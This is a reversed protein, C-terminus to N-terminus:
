RIDPNTINVQWNLSSYFCGESLFGDTQNLGTWNFDTMLIALESHCSAAYELAGDRIQDFTNYQLITTPTPSTTPSNTPLNTVPVFVTSSVYPSPTPTPSESPSNSSTSAVYGGIGAVVLVLVIIVAYVM